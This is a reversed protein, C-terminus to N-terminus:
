LRVTLVDCLAHHVVAHATSGLFSPLHDSPDHSGIILLDCGLERAKNLVQIKISGIEVHQQSKPLGLSEGLVKLVILADDKVPTALEAFGLSQALQLSAPQEIVHLLHLTAGFSKAIEVAKQCLAYHNEKLDTAHLIKTYM